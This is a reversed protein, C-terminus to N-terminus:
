DIERPVRLRRRTRVKRLKKTEEIAEKNRPFVFDLGFENIEPGLDYKVSTVEDEKTFEKKRRPFQFDNGFEEIESGLNYDMSMSMPMSSYKSAMKSAKARPIMFDHGFENIESGVNIDYSMSLYFPAGTEERTPVRTPSADPRSSPTMTLTSTVPQSTPSVTPSETPVLPCAMRPPAELKTFSLWGASSGEELVPYVTCDNTFEIALINIIPQGETNQAYINFQLVRPVDGVGSYRQVISSFTFSDGDFYSGNSDINQILTSNNLIELIQIDYVEVPVLDTITDDPGGYQSIACYTSKVGNPSIDVPPCTLSMDFTFEYSAPSCACGQGTAPGLLSLLSGLAIFKPISSMTM